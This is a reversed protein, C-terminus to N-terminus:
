PCQSVGVPRSTYGKELRVILFRGFLISLWPCYHRVVRELILNLKECRFVPIFYHGYLKKTSFDIDAFLRGFEGPSYFKYFTGNIKFGTSKQHRHSLHSVISWVNVVAKGGPKLVRFIEEFVLRAGDSIHELLELSIVRDFANDKFPLHRADAVITNIQGEFGRRIAKQQGWKLMGISRDVGCVKGAGQQCAFLGNRLTGAGLDLVTEGGKLGLLEFATKREIVERYCGPIMSNQDYYEGTSISMM